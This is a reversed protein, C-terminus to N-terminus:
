EMSELFAQVRTKMQGIGSQNYERDLFLLPIGEKKMESKMIAYFGGTLDCFKLQIYLIGDCGFEDHLEKVADMTNGYIRPCNNGRLYREVLAALPDDSGEEVNNWFYRSGICQDDAVILCGLDEIIKLYDSDDMESSVLLLRPLDERDGAPETEKLVPLIEKLMKIYDEKPQVLGALVIDLAESGTIPPNDSQRLMYIEKMLSRMENFLKISENLKENSIEINLHRELKKKFTRFSDLHFKFGAEDTKHPMQVTDMFSRPRFHKFTDYFRRTHDCSNCSVFGDLHDLKGTFLEQGCSRLYTCMNSHIYADGVPTEEHTGLLRTPVIGAAHLIEEPVFNCAWNFVSKGEAKLDQAIQYRRSYVDRFDQIDM